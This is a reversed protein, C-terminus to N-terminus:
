NSVNIFNESSPLKIKEPLSPFEEKKKYGKKRRKAMQM